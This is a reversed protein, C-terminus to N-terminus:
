NLWNQSSATKACVDECFNHRKETEQFLENKNEFIMMFPPTGPAEM